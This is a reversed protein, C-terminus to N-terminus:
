PHQCLFYIGDADFVTLSGEPLNRVLIPFFENMYRDRGLGPGIIWSNIASKWTLIKEIWEEHLAKVEQPSLKVEDESVFLPHV